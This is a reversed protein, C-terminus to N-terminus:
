KAHYMCAYKAYSALLDGSFPVELILSLLTFREEQNYRPITGSGSLRLGALGGLARPAFPCMHLNSTLTFAM